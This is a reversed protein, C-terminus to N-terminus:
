ENLLISRNRTFPEYNSDLRMGEDLLKRALVQNGAQSASLAWNNICARLNSQASTDQPDLVACAWTTSLASSFRENTLAEVGRNYFVKAVLESSTLQRNKLRSSLSLKSVANEPSSATTEIIYGNRPSRPSWCQVHSPEWLAIVDIDFAKCLAQFLITATLCNFDGESMTTGVDYLEARYEGHLFENSLHGFIVRLRSQPSEHIRVKDRCRRISQSLLHRYTAIKEEEHGAILLSADFLTHKDLRGDGLDDLVQRDSLSWGSLEQYRDFVKARPEISVSKTAVSQGFVPQQILVFGILGIFFRVALSM